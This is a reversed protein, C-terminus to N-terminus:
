SSANAEQRRRLQERLFLVSPRVCVLARVRVRARLRVCVRGEAAPGESRLWCGAALVGKGVCVRVRASLHGESCCVPRCGAAARLGARVVRVAM